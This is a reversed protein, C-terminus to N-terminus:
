WCFMKGEVDDGVKGGAFKGISFGIGEKLVLNANCFFEKIFGKFSEVEGSGGEVRPISCSM